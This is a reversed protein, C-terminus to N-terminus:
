KSQHLVISVMRKGGEQVFSDRGLMHRMRLVPDDDNSTDSESSMGLTKADQEL